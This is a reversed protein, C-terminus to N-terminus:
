GAPCLTVALFFGCTTSGSGPNVCPTDPSVTPCYDCSCRRAASAPLATAALILSLAAFRAIKPLKM